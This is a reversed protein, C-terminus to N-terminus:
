SDERGIGMGMMWGDKRGEKRGEKRGGLVSCMDDDSLVAFPPYSVFSHIFSLSLFFWDDDDM